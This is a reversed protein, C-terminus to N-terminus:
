LIEKCSRAPITWSTLSSICCAQSLMLPWSGSLVKNVFKQMRAEDGAHSISSQIQSRTLFLPHTYIRRLLDKHSAKGWNVQLIRWQSQGRKPHTLWPSANIRGQCLASPHIEGPGDSNAMTPSENYCFGHLKRSHQASRLDQWWLVKWHRQAQSHCGCMSPMSMLIQLCWLRTPM